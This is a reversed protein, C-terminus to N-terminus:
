KLRGGAAKRVPVLKGASHLGAVDDGGGIFKGAATPPRATPNPPWRASRGSRGLVTRVCPPPASAKRGPACARVGVWARGELFCRPVSTAGTIQGLAAQIDRADNREELEIVLPKVGAAAFTRLAKQCYPCYDKSFVVLKASEITSKVFAAAM